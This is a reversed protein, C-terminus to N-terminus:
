RGVVREVRNGFRQGGALLQADFDDGPTSIVLRVVCLFKVHQRRKPSEHFCTLIRIQALTPDRWGAYALFTDNLEHGLQVLQADRQCDFIHIRAGIAACDTARM